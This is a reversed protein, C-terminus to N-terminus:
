LTLVKSKKYSLVWTRLVKMPDLSQVTDAPHFFPEWTTLWAELLDWRDRDEVGLVRPWWWPDPLIESLVVQWTLVMRSLVTDDTTATSHPTCVRFAVAAGPNVAALNLTDPRKMAEGIKLLLAELHQERKKGGSNRQLDTNGNLAQDKDYAVELMDMLDGEGKLGIRPLVLTPIGAKLAVTISLVNSGKLGDLHISLLHINSGSVKEFVGLNFKHLILPGTLGAAEASMPDKQVFIVTRSNRGLAKTYLADIQDTLNAVLKWCSPPMIAVPTMYHSDKRGTAEYAVNQDDREGERGIYGRQCGVEIMEPLIELFSGTFKLDLKEVQNRSFKVIDETEATVYGTLPPFSLEGMPSNVGFLDALLVSNAKKNKTAILEVQVLVKNSYQAVVSVDAKQKDSARTASRLAFDQVPSPILVIEAGGLHKAALRDTNLGGVVHEAPSCIAFDFSALSGQKMIEETCELGRETVSLVDSFHATRFVQVSDMQPLKPHDRLLSAAFLFRNGDYESKKLVETVDNVISSVNRTVCSLRPEFQVVLQVAAALSKSAYVSAVQKISSGARALVGCIIILSEFTWDLYKMNYKPPLRFANRAVLQPCEVPRLLQKGHKTHTAFLSPLDLELRDKPPAGLEHREYISYYRSISGAFEVESIRTFFQCDRFGKELSQLVRRGKFFGPVVIVTGSVVNAALNSAFGQYETTPITIDLALLLIPQNKSEPPLEQNGEASKGKAIKSPRQVQKEFV